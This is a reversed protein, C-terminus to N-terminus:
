YTMSTILVDDYVSALSPQSSAITDAGLIPHTLVDTLSVRADAAICSIQVPLFILALVNELHLVFCFERFIYECTV